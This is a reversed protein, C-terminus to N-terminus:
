DLVYFGAADPNMIYGRSVPFPDDQFISLVQFRGELLYNISLTGDDLRDMKQITGIVGTPRGDRDRRLEGSLSESCIHGFRLKGKSGEDEHRRAIGNFLDLFRHM